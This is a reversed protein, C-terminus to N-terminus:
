VDAVNNMSQAMKIAKKRERRKLMTYLTLLLQTIVVGLVLYIVFEHNELIEGHIEQTNMIRIQPDANHVVASKSATKGM